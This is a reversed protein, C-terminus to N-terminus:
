KKEKDRLSKEYVLAKEHAKEYELGDEKMLRREYIEHGMNDKTDREDKMEEVWIEEEPIFDYVYHHGGLCFNIDLEDRVFEGDILFVKFDENREDRLLRVYPKNM